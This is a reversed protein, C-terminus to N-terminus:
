ENFNRVSLFFKHCQLLRRGPNRNPVIIRYDSGDLPKSKQTVLDVVSFIVNRTNEPTIHITKILTGSESPDTVKPGEPDKFFKCM